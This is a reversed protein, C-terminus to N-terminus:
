HMSITWDKHLFFSAVVLCHKFEHLQLGLGAVDMDSRAGAALCRGHFSLSARADCTPGLSAFDEQLYPTNCVALIVTTFTPDQMSPLLWHKDICLEINLM